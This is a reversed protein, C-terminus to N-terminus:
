RTYLDQRPLGSLNRYTSKGNAILALSHIINDFLTSERQLTTPINTALGLQHIPYETVDVHVGMVDMGEAIYKCTRTHHSV